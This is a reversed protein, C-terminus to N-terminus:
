RRTLAKALEEEMSDPEPEPRHERAGAPHAHGLKLLMWGVTVLGALLLVVFVAFVDWQSSVELKYPDITPALLMERLRYRSVAMLAVCVSGLVTAVAIGKRLAFHMAGLACLVGVWLIATDGTSEGLFNMRIAKPISFLFWMGVLLNALTAYAFWKGGYRSAEEAWDPDSKSYARTLLALGLGALAFGGLVMHAYRAWSGNGTMELHLGTPNQAYISAWKDPQQMLISNSTFLLGIVLILVASTWSVAGRYSGLWNPKFQVIYLGYYAVLLMPVIAFWPWAMLASTTYFAQGYLVQVFLLPAIGLTITMAMVVPLAKSIRDGLKTYFGGRDRRRFALGMFVVGGVLFNMALLHLVFTLLLLAQLLWAPAPLGIPDPNPIVTPM